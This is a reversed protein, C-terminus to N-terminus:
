PGGAVCNLVSGFRRSWIRGTSVAVVSVEFLYLSKYMEERRVNRMWANWAFMDLCVRKCELCVGFGNTAITLYGEVTVMCVVSQIAARTPM